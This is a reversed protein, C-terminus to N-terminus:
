PRSRSRPAHRSAPATAPPSPRSDSGNKANQSRGPAFDLGDRILFQLQKRNFTYRPVVRLHEELLQVFFLGTAAKKESKGSRVCPAGRVVSGFTLATHASDVWVPFLLFGRRILNK